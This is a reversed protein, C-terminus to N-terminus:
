ARRLHVLYHDGLWAAGPVRDVRNEWRALTRLLAPRAAVWEGVYSPPLVVGIPAVSEVRFAPGLARAVTRPSPYRITMGRWETSRRFRRFARGPQRRVLYWGWEWPVVPGMVVLVVSGGPRVLRALAPGIRPLDAVCNIGGFDSLVLDFPGGFPDVDLVDLSEIAIAATAVREGVGRRDAKARTAAVMDAAADTALVVAGLSALHAADEGTGCNLELVRTGPGVLPDVRAWVRDRLLRGLPTDTFTADYSAALDDFAATETAVDPKSM